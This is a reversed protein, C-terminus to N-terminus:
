TCRVVVRLRTTGGARHGAGALDVEDEDAVLIEVNGALERFYEPPARRVACRVTDARGRAESKSAARRDQRDYRPSSPTPLYGEILAVKRAPSRTRTSTSPGSRPAPAAPLHVHHARRRPDGAGPLPRDVPGRHAGPHTFNVGHSRISETFSAGLQDDHVKGVYGADAGLAAAISRHQRRQWRLARDDRRGERVADRGPGPRRADHGGKPLEFRPSPTTTPRRSCTSSRTASEWYTWPGPDDKPMEAVRKPDVGGGYTIARRRASSGSRQRRASDGGTLCLGPVGAGPGRAPHPGRRLDRALAHVGAADLDPALPGGARRPARRHLRLVAAKDLIADTQSDRVIGRAWELM